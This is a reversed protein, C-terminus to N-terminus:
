QIEINGNANIIINKNNLRFDSLKNVQPAPPLFYVEGQSLTLDPALNVTENSCILKYSSDNLRKVGFSSCSTQTALALAQERRINSILTEAAIDLNDQSSKGKLSVVALVAFLSIISVVALLEVLSVGKRFYSIKFM